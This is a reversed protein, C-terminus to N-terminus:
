RREHIVEMDHIDQFLGKLRAIDAILGGNAARGGAPGADIGERIAQYHRAPNTVTAWPYLTFSATPLRGERDARQFWRVLEEAERGWEDPPIDDSPLVSPGLARVLVTQWQGLAVKLPTTLREAGDAVIVRGGTSHLRVGAAELRQLLDPLSRVPGTPKM